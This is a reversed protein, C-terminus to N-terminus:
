RLWNMKDWYPLNIFGPDPYALKEATRMRNTNLYHGNAALLSQYLYEFRDIGVLAASVESFSLVFKVALAPLDYDEGESLVGYSDIHKEVDALAPHLNKGRNSLLGKLLVSRIVLGVGQGAAQPFLEKQRQDMLNFPLQIVNWIKKDLALKTEGTTYTSVGIARIKGKEKLKLFVSAIDENNLITENAQHLMFVDVFDTQLAILSEELSSEIIKKLTGPSPLDGSPNILHKCKTCIVVEKRRDAFAKGMIKESEGYMRATDFFNIGSELATHLLKIADTESLMDEENKVGLGYPIGIEVGGFSVESVCIGTKGLARKKISM